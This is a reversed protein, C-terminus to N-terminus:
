CGGDRRLSNRLSLVGAGTCSPSMMASTAAVHEAVAWAAFLVYRNLRQVLVRV